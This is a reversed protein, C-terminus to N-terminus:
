LFFLYLDFQAHRFPRYFLPLSLSFSLPCVRYIYNVNAFFFCLERGEVYAIAVFFAFGALLLKMNDVTSPADSPGRLVQSVTKAFIKVSTKRHNLLLGAFNRLM